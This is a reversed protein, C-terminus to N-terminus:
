RIGSSKSSRASRGAYTLWKLSIQNTSQGPLTYNCHKRAFYKCRGWYYEIWNLECHVKLYFIFIPIAPMKSLKRCAPALRTGIFTYNCLMRRGVSVESQSYAQNKPTFKPQKNPTSSWSRIPSPCYLNAYALACPTWGNSVM